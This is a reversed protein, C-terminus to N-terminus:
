DLLDQYLELDTVPLALITSHFTGCSVSVPLYATNGIRLEVEEPRDQTKYCILYM